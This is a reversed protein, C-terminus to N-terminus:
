SFPTEVSGPANERSERLLEAFTVSSWQTGSGTIKVRSPIVRPGVSLLKSFNM